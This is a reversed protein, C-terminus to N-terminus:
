LNKLSFIMLDNCEAEEVALIRRLRLREWLLIKRHDLIEKLDCGEKYGRQWLPLM